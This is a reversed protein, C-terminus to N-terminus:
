KFVLKNQSFGYKQSNLNKQHLFNKKSQNVKEYAQPWDSSDVKDLGQRDDITYLRIKQNELWSIFNRFINEDTLFLSYILNKM